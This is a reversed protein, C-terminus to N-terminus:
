RLKGSAQQTSKNGAKDTGTLDVTLPVSKSKKTLALGAKTLKVSVSKTKGQTFKFTGRAVVTKGSTATVSLTAPESSGVRVQLSRRKRVSSRKTDLM